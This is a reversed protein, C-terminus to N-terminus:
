GERERYKTMIERVIKAAVPKQSAFFLYYVIANASNRMPIPDVVHRFGAVDMLRRRFAEAIVENGLKDQKPAGFMELQPSEEYAVDRWSEDGWFATMRRTGSEPVREPHRWLANRNIDMTPFNLFIEISRMRGATEIVSWNLHLGYPDLLCLARRRDEYRVSPFVDRLLVENCDGRYCHVNRRGQVEPFGKLQEVKDGDLDILFYDDFPPEIRLANLPSGPVREQTTRALHMGPGAFADIYTHSFRLDKALITSYAQAYKKVIELKLESWYGIEDFILEDRGCWDDQPSM